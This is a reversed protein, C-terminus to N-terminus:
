RPHACHVAMWMAVFSSLRPDGSSHCNEDRRYQGKGGVTVPVPDAALEELTRPRYKGDMMLLLIHWRQAQRVWILTGIVHSTSLERECAARM